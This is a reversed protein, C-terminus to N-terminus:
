NNRKKTRELSIDDQRMVITENRMHGAGANPKPNRGLVTGLDTQVMQLGQLVKLIHANGGANETGHTIGVPSLLSDM